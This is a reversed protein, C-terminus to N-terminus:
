IPVIYFVGFFQLIKNCHVTCHKDCTQTTNDKQEEKVIMGYEMIQTHIKKRKTETLFLLITKAFECKFLM